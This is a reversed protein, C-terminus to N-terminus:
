RISNMGERSVGRMKEFTRLGGLGLLSFLVTILESTGTLTPLAPTGPFFAMQVWALLDYLIFHWALAAACVWGVAPRWGAVFVSPHEAETKNIEMQGMGSALVAMTIEHEFVQKQNKDPILRELPERVIGLITDLVPIGM